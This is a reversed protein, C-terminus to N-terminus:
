ERELFDMLTSMMDKRREEHELNASGPAPEEDEAPSLAILETGDAAIGLADAAAGPELM